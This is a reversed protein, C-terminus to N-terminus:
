IGMGSERGMWDGDWGGEWGTGMGGEKRMWDGDMNLCSGGVKIGATGGVTRVGGVVMPMWGPLLMTRGQLAM